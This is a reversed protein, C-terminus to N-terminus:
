LFRVQKPWCLRDRQSVTRNLDNHADVLSMMVVYSVAARPKPTRRKDAIHRLGKTTPLQGAPVVEVVSGQTLGRSPNFSVARGVKSVQSRLIGQAAHIDCNGDGNTDRSCCPTFRKILGEAAKQGADFAASIRFKLAPDFEGKVKTPCAFDTARHSGYSSCCNACMRCFKAEQEETLNEM